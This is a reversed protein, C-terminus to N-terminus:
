PRAGAPVTPAAPAGALSRRLLVAALVISGLFTVGSAFVGLELLENRLAFGAAGTVALGGSLAFLLATARALRGTIVWLGTAVSLAALGWVAYGFINFAYGFSWLEDFIFLRYLEAAAPESAALEALGRVVTLQSWYNLTVFPAYLLGFCVGLVGAAPRQDWVVAALALWLPVLVFALPLVLLLPVGHALEAGRILRLQEAPGAEASAAPLAILAVVWLTTLAASAVAAMWGLRLLQWRLLSNVDGGAM